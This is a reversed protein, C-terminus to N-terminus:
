YSILDGKYEGPFFTFHHIGDGEDMAEGHNDYFTVKEAVVIKIKQPDQGEFSGRAPKGKGGDEGEWAFQLRWNAVDNIVGGRQLVSKDGLFWGVLRPSSANPAKRLNVGPTKVEIIKSFKPVNLTQGLGQMAMGLVM